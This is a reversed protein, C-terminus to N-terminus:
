STKGNTLHFFLDIVETIPLQNFLPARNLFDPNFKEEGEKRLYVCLLKDMALYFNNDVESLIMDISAVEGTKFKNFDKKVHYTVEDITVKTRPLKPVETNLFAMNDLVKNFDEIDFENIIDTSINLMQSVLEISLSMGKLETNLGVIKKYDSVTIESWQTPIDYVLEKGDVLIELKTM